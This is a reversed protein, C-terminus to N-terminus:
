EQVEGRLYRVAKEGWIVARKYVAMGPVSGRWMGEIADAMEAGGGESRVASLPCMYTKFGFVV